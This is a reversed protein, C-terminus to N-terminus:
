EDISVTYGQTNWDYYVTFAHQLAAVIPLDTTRAIIQYDELIGEQNILIRYRWLHGAFIAPSPTIEHLDTISHNIIRTRQQGL